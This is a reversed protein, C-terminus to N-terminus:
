LEEGGEKELQEDIFRIEHRVSSLRGRIDQRQHPKTGPKALELLLKSERVKLIKRADPLRFAPLKKMGEKM